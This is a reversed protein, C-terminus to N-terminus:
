QTGRRGKTGSLTHGEGGGDLDPMKHTTQYSSYNHSAQLQNVM